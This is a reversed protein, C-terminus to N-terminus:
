DDIEAMFTKDSYWHHLRHCNSCLLECKEVEILVRAKSYRNLHNQNINFLKTTPDRHHFDFVPTNQGDHKLGCNSCANGLKELMAVRIEYIRRYRYANRQERHRYNWERKYQTSNDYKRGNHGNVYNVDRAYKDKSKIMEGCGCSCSILPAQDYVRKFYRQKPTLGDDYIKRNSMAVSRLVLLIVIIDRTTNIAYKLINIIKINM